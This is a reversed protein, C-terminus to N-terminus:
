VQPVGLHRITVMALSNTVHTFGLLESSVCFKWPNVPVIFWLQNVLWLMRMLKIITYIIIYDSLDLKSWRKFLWIIMLVFKDSLM